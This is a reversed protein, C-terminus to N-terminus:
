PSSVDASALSSGRSQPPRMTVSQWREVCQVNVDLTALKAVVNLMDTEEAKYKDLEQRLHRVERELEEVRALEAGTIHGQASIRDKEAQRHAQLARSIMQMAEERTILNSGTDERTIASFSGTVTSQGGSDLMDREVPREIDQRKKDCSHLKDPRGLRIRNPHLQQRARDAYRYPLADASM